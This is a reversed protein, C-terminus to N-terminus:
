AFTSIKADLLYRSYFLPLFIYLFSFPGIFYLEWYTDLNDDNAIYKKAVDRIM